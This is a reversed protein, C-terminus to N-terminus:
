SGSRFTDGSCAWWPSIAIELGDQATGGTTAREKLLFEVSAAFVSGASLSVVRAPRIM